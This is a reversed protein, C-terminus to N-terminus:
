LILNAILTNKAIPQYPVLEQRFQGGERSHRIPSAPIVAPTRKLIQITNIILSFPM